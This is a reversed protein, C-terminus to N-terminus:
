RVLKICNNNKKDKLLRVREQQEKNWKAQVDEGGGFVVDDQSQSSDWPYYCIIEGLDYKKRMYLELSIVLEEIGKGNISM